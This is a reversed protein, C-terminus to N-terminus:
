RWCIRLRGSGRQTGRFGGGGEPRCDAGSGECATIGIEADVAAVHSGSGPM